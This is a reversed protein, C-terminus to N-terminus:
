EEDGFLYGQRAENADKVSYRLAEIVAEVNAPAILIISPEEMENEQRIAVYGAESVYVGIEAQWAVVISRKDMREHKM